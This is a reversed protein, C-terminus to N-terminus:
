KCVKIWACSSFCEKKFESIMFFQTILLVKFNRFILDGSVQWENTLQDEYHLVVEKNQEGESRARLTEVMNSLLGLSTGADATGYDAIHYAGDKTTSTQSTIEKLIKPTAAQIVDFCGKTAATYEGEGDKGVPVHVGAGAKSTVSAFAFTSRFPPVLLLLAKSALKMKIKTIKKAQKL